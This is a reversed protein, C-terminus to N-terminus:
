LTPVPRTAPTNSSPCICDLTFCTKIMTITLQITNLNRIPPYLPKKYDQILIFTRTGDRLEAISIEEINQDNKNFLSFIAGVIAFM